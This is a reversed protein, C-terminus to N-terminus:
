DNNSGDGPTKICEFHLTSSPTNTAHRERFEILASHIFHLPRRPQHVILAALLASFLEDFKHQAMYRSHARAIVAPPPAEPQVTASEGAKISNQLKGKPISTIGAASTTSANTLNHLSNHPPFSSLTISAISNSNLYTAM